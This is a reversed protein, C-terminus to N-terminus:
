RKGAWTPLIAGFGPPLYCFDMASWWVPRLETALQLYDWLTWRYGGYAQMATFGGCDLAFPVEIDWLVEHGRFRGNQWFANASM